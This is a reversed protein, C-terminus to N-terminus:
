VTKTQVHIIDWWGEDCTLCPWVSEIAATQNLRKM